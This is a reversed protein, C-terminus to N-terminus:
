DHLVEEDTHRSYMYFYLKRKLEARQEDTVVDYAVGLSTSAMYRYIDLGLWRAEETSQKIDIM